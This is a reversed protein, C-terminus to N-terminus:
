SVLSGTTGRALREGDCTAACHLTWLQGFARGSLQWSGANMVPSVSAPGTREFSSNRKQPEGV